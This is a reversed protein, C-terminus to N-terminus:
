MRLMQRFAAGDDTLFYHAAKNMVNKATLGRRISQGDSVDEFGTV